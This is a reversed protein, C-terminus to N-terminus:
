MEKYAKRDQRVQSVLQDLRVSQDQLVKLDQRVQQERQVRLAQLVQPDQQERTARQAQLGLRALIEQLVQQEQRVLLALQVLQV